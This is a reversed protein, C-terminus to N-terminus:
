TWIMRRNSGEGEKKKGRGWFSVSSLVFSQVPCCRLHQMSEVNVATRHSEISLVDKRHFSTATGEDLSVIEDVLTSTGDGILDSEVFVAFSSEANGNRRKVFERDIRQDKLTGKRTEKRGRQEREREKM